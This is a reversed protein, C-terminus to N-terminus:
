FAVGLHVSLGHKLAFSLDQKANVTPRFVYGLGLVLACKDFEYRYDVGARVPIYVIPGAKPFLLGVEVGVNAKPVLVNNGGLRIPLVGGFRAGGGGFVSGGFGVLGFLGALFVALVGDHVENATEQLDETEEQLKAAITDMMAFDATDPTGLSELFLRLDDGPIAIGVQDRSFAKLTNLGLVHYQDDQKRLLPGGSSGPDIAATHQIFHRKEDPITLYANSITGRTLQWSPLNQLGPFGAATIDEDEKVPDTSIPLAVINVASAPLAIAALDLEESASLVPCHEYTLTTDQLQFVLKAKRAYRVVHRNTLVCTPTVVGSGFSGRVLGRTQRSEVSKGQRFLYMSYKTLLASDAPSYEPYVICVSNRLSQAQLFICVSFVIGFALGRKGFMRKMHKLTLNSIELHLALLICPDYLPWTVNYGERSCLYQKKKFQGFKKLPFHLFLTNRGRECVKKM